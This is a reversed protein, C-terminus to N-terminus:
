RWDIRITKFHQPRWQDNYHRRLDEYYTKRGNVAEDRHRSGVVEKRTMPSWVYKGSSTKLRMLNLYFPGEIKLKAM